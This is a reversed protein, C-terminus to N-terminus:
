LGQLKFDYSAIAVPHTHMGKFWNHGLKLFGTKDGM